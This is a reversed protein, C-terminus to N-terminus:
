RPACELSVYLLVCCNESSMFKSVCDFTEGKSCVLKTWQVTGLEMIETESSMAFAMEFKELKFSEILILYLPSLLSSIEM